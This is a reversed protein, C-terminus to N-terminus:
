NVRYELVFGFPGVVEDVVLAVGVAEVLVELWVEDLGVDVLVGLEPFYLSTSFMDPDENKSWKV